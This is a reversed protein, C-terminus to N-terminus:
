SGAESLKLDICDKLLHRIRTLKMTVASHKKDLKKCIEAISLGESYRLNVMTLAEDEVSKLCTKMHILKDENNSPSELAIQQEIMIDLEAHGGVFHPRKKRWYNRLLNMAIGRLWPAINKETDFEGLNRYAILFTEQALDEVEHSDNCRVAICARVANQQEEIIKSFDRLNGGKARAILDPEFDTM